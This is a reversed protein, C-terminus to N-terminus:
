GNQILYVITLSCEHKKRIDGKHYENENERKEKQKMFIRAQQKSTEYM